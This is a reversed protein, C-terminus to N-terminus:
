QKKNVNLVDHVHLWLKFTNIYLIFKSLLSCKQDLWVFPMGYLYFNLCPDLKANDAIKKLESVNRTALLVDRTSIIHKIVFKDYYSLNRRALIQYELKLNLHYIKSKSLIRSMHYELIITIKNVVKIIDPVFNAGRPYPGSRTNIFWFRNRKIKEQFSTQSGMMLSVENKIKSQNNKTFM